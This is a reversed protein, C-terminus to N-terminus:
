KEDPARDANVPKTEGEREREREQEQINNGLVSRMQHGIQM